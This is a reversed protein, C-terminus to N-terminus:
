VLADPIAVDGAHVVLLIAPVKTTLAMAVAKLETSNATM